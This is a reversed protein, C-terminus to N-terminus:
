CSLWKLDEYAKFLFCLYQQVLYICDLVLEPRTTLFSITKGLRIKSMIKNAIVCKKIVVIYTVRNCSRIRRYWAM